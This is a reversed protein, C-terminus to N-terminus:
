GTRSARLLRALDKKMRNPDAGAPFRMMLNGLPDIMYVHDAVRGADPVPFLRSAGAADIRAMVTGEYDARLAAAPTAGDTILMVREIRDRDKGTTLRVQRMAYLKDVCAADCAGADVSVMVWRGSLSSLPLATGDLATARVDRASPQPELLVGYNTRGEPRVVYYSLYSGLVPAACVAFILALKLRSGAARPVASPRPDAQRPDAM